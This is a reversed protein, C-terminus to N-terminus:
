EANEMDDMINALVAIKRFRKVTAAPQKYGSLEAAKEFDAGDLVRQAFERERASRGSLNYTTPENEPEPEPDPEPDAALEVTPRPTAIAGLTERVAKEAVAQMMNVLESNTYMKPTDPDTPKSDYGNPIGVDEGALWGKILAYAGDKFRVGMDEQDAGMDKICYFESGDPVPPHIIQPTGNINVTMPLKGQSDLILRRVFEAYCCSVMILMDDGNLELRVRPHEGGVAVSITRAM